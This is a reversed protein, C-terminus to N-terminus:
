AILFPILKSTSSSSSSFGRGDKQTSSVKKLPMPFITIDVDVAYFARVLEKVLYDQALTILIYVGGPKLVQLVSQLYVQAEEKYNWAKKKMKMKDEQEGRKKEENKDDGMDEEETKRGNLREADERSGGAERERAQRCSKVSKENKCRDDLSSSSSASSEEAEEGAIYADLFGKDLVVDFAEDGFRRQLAGEQVNLCEWHLLSSFHRYRRKM